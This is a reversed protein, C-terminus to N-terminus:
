IVEPPNVLAAEEDAELAGLSHIMPLLFPAIGSTVDRIHEEVSRPEQEEDPGTRMKKAINDQHLLALGVMLLGLQFRQRIAHTEPLHAHRWTARGTLNM